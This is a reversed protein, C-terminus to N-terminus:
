ELWSFNVIFMKLTHTYVSVKRSRDNKIVLVIISAWNDAFNM